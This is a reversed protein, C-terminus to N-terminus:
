NWNLVDDQFDNLVHSYEKDCACKNDHSACKFTFCVYCRKHNKDGTYHKDDNIYYSDHNIQEDICKKCLICYHHPEDCSRILFDCKGNLCEDTLDVYIYHKNRTHNYIIHEDVEEKYKQLKLCKDKYFQLEKTLEDISKNDNQLKLCKDKYSQFKRTIDNIRKNDQM